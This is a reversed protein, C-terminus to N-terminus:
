LLILAFLALTVTFLEFFDSPSVMRRALAGRANLMLLGLLTSFSVIRLLFRLMESTNM